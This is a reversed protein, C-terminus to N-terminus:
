VASPTAVLAERAELAADEGFYYNLVVFHTLDDLLSEARGAEELTILRRVAEEIAGLMFRATLAPAFHRAGPAQRARDLPEIFRKVNEEYLRLGGTRGQFSRRVSSQRHDAGGRRDSPIASGPGSDLKGTGVGAAYGRPRKEPPLGLCGPSCDRLLGAKQRFPSLLAM